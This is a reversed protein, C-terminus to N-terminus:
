VLAHKTSLHPSVKAVRDVIAVEIARSDVDCAKWPEGQLLPNTGVDVVGDPAHVEPKTRM